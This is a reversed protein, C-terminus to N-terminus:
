NITAISITSRALVNDFFRALDLIFRPLVNKREGTISGQVFDWDFQIEGIRSISYIYASFWRNKSKYPFWDQM